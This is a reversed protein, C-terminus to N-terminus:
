ILFQTYIEGGAVLLCHASTINEEQSHLGVDNGKYKIFDSWIDLVTVENDGTSCTDSDAGYLLHTLLKTLNGNCIIYLTGTVDQLDLFDFLVNIYLSFFVQGLM